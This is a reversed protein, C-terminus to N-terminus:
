HQKVDVFARRVILPPPGQVAVEIKVCSRLEAHAVTNGRGHINGLMCVCHKTSKLVTTQRLKGYNAHRTM